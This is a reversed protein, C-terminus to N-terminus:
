DDVVMYPNFGWDSFPWCSPLVRTFYNFDEEEEGTIKESCLWIFGEVSTEEVLGRAITPERYDRGLCGGAAGVTDLLLLTQM